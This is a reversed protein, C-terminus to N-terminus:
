RRAPPKPHVWILLHSLLYLILERVQWNGPLPFVLHAHFSVVSARFAPRGGHLARTAQFVQDFRTFPLSLLVPELPAIVIGQAVLEFSSGSGRLGTPACLWTPTASLQM